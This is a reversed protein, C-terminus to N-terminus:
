CRLGRGRRVWGACVVLRLGVFEFEFFEMELGLLKSIRFGFSTAREREHVCFVSEGAMRM